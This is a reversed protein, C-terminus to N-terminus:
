SLWAICAHIGAYSCMVCVNTVHARHINVKATYMYTYSSICTFMYVYLYISHMYM